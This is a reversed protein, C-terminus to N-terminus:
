KKAEQIERVYVTRLRYRSRPKAQHHQVTVTGGYITAQHATVTGTSPKKQGHMIFFAIESGKPWKKELERVMAAETEILRQRLQELKKSM